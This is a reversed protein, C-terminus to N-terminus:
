RCENEDAVHHCYQENFRCCFFSSGKVLDLRESELRAAPAGPPNPYQVLETVAGKAWAAQYVYLGRLVRDRKGNTRIITPAPTSGKVKGQPRFSFKAQPAPTSGVWLKVELDDHAALFFIRSVVEGVQDLLRNAREAPITAPQPVAAKVSAFRPLSLGALGAVVAVARPTSLGFPLAAIHGSPAALEEQVRGQVRRLEEASWARLPELGSERVRGIAQDLDEGTRAILGALEQHLYAPEGDPGRMTRLAHRNEDFRKKVEEVQQSLAKALRKSPSEFTIRAGGLRVTIQGAAPHGAALLLGALVVAAARISVSTFRDIKV